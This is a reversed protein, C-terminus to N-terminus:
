LREHAAAGVHREVVGVEQLAALEAAEEVGGVGLLTQGREELLARRRELAGSCGSDSQGAEAPRHIACTTRGASRGPPTLPDAPLCPQRRLTELRPMQPKPGPRSGARERPARKSRSEGLAALGKTRPEPRQDVPNFAWAGVCLRLGAVGPPAAPGRPTKDAPG